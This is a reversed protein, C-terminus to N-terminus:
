VRRSYRLTHHLTEHGLRQQTITLARHGDIGRVCLSDQFDQTYAWRLGHTGRGEYKQGTAEAAEKVHRHYAEYDAKLRGHKDIHDSLKDYLWVPLYQTRMKGGKGKFTIAGAPDGTVPDVCKGKLNTADLPKFGGATKTENSVAEAVRLGGYYQLEAALRYKGDQYTPNMAEILQVPKEYARAIQDGNLLKAAIERQEKLLEQWQPPRNCAISLAADMKSLASTYADFSAKKGGYKYQLFEKVHEPKIQDVTEARGTTICFKTLAKMTSQYTRSTKTGYIGTKLAIQNMTKAGDSRADKIALSRSRKGSGDRPGGFMGSSYLLREVQKEVSWKANFKAM